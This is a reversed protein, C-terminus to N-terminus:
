IIKMNVPAGGKAKSEDAAEIFAAIELTEEPNVPAVGTEFFKIIQELLPNYGNFEGLTVNGKEGFVRAGYDNKGSRTGRFSGVRGDNWVGVVVDTDNTHM